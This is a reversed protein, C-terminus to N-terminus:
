IIKRLTYENYNIPKIFANEHLSNYNTNNTGKPPKPSMINHIGPQGPSEPNGQRQRGFEPIVPLCCWVQIKVLKRKKRKHTHMNIHTCTHKYMHHM